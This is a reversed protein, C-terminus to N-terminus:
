SEDWIITSAPTGGLLLCRSVIQFSGGNGGHMVHHGHTAIQGGFAIGVMM